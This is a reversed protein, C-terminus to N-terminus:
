QVDKPLITKRPFLVPLDYTNEPYLTNDSPLQTWTPISLSTDYNATASKDVIFRDLSFDIQNLKYQWGTNIINKIYESRGPLTYCLVWARIFGLTNGNEQQSTMWKPLISQDSTFPLNQALRTSMNITSAPYLVNTSGPSDSTYTNTLSTFLEPNTTYDDNLNLNITQPWVIQQPLTNGQSNILDDIIESYVVEYLINNNDDRAIATKLEGLVLKRYYFNEGMLNIYASLRAPELGYFFTFRVDKAKGFYPDEPRYLYNTPMLEENTLLSQIIQRGTLDPTAKFYLDEVPVNFKQYVTVTFEKTSSVVPYRPNFAEVTFTYVTSDGVTLLNTTPQFPIRGVIQGNALLRTNTPLNGSVLKYQIGNASSAIVALDSISGNNVTGLDSPSVWVIDPTVGNEVTVTFYSLPSVISYNNAKAVCVSFTYKSISNDSITPIGSIWGTNLDGTLGPPLAGYQYIIDSRDFDYGIVKFSFYEGSKINPIVGDTSYYAFYPDDLPVPQQLPANNLIVPVRSGQTITLQQNRVIISFQKTDEGLLSSLQVTFPYTRTTPTGVPSVPPHAYGTIRGTPSMFLGPPLEGSSLTIVYYNSAVPNNVQIQYDIYVSDLTNFLQGSPTTIKVSDFGYVSISFTKDKINGLNDTARVTFLFEQQAALNQLTGTIYGNSSLTINGEPLAGNLLAYTVSLAPAVPQAQIQINVEFGSPYVGLFSPQSTWDPQAM